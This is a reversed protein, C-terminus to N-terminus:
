SRYLGRLRGRVPELRLTLLLVGLPLVIVATALWFGPRRWFAQPGPCARRWLRGIREM